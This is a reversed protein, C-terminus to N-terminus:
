RPEIPASMQAAMGRMSLDSHYERVIRQNAENTAFEVDKKVSLLIAATMAGVMQDGRQAQEILEDIKALKENREIPYQALNRM